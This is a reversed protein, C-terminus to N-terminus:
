HIDIFTKKGFLTNVSDRIRASDKYARNVTLYLRYSVSDRTDMKLNKAFAFGSLKNMGKQASELDTYTRVVVKFSRAPEAPQPTPAPPPPPPPTPEAAPRSTDPAAAAAPTPEPAPTTATTVTQPTENSQEVVPAPSPATATGSDANRSVWFYIGAAVLLPIAILAITKPSLPIAPSSPAPERERVPASASERETAAPPTTNDSEETPEDPAREETFHFVGEQDKILTGLNRINFPKGLNLFQRGLMTFSELDSTALPKIKRTHTVIFAILGDDPAAQNQQTFTVTEGGPTSADDDQLQFTGIQQLTVKKNQQLYLVVLQEIKM